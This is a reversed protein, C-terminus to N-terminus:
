VPVAEVVGHGMTSKTLGDLRFGSADFLAEFDSLKREQGTSWIMMSIDMSQSETPAPEEHLVHDIIALRGGAPIAARITKLIAICEADNWDHLIMKLLYLDAVPVSKFFDGGVLEVRGANPRSRVDDGVREIVEPLDFLIGKADPHDDLLRLLLGGHNGGIDAAVNFPQFSHEAFIFREVRWTMYHMFDNFIEARDPNAALHEFVPMGFRQEYPTVGAQLAADLTLGAETGICNSLVCSRVLDLNRSRQTAKFRGDPLLEVIEEAVLYTLVRRTKDEPWGLRPALEAASTPTDGLMRDIKSTAVARMVTLSTKMKDIWTFFEAPDDLLEGITNTM